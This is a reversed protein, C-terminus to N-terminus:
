APGLGFFQSTDNIIHRVDCYAGPLLLDELNLWRHFFLTVPNQLLWSSWMCMYM